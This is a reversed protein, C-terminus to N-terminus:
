EYMTNAHGGEVKWTEVGGIGVLRTWIQWFVRRLAHECSKGM